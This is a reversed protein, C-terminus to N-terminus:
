VIRARHAPASRGVSNTVRRDQRQPVGQVVLADASRRTAHIALAGAGEPHPVGVQVAPGYAFLREQCVEYPTLIWFRGGQDSRVVCVSDRVQKNLKYAECLAGTEHCTEVAPNPVSPATSTAISGDSLRMAAAGAWRQGPLRAQVLEVAVSVLEQDVAMHEVSSTTGPAASPRGPLRDDVRRKDPGGAKDPPPSCSPDSRESSSGVFTTRSQHV